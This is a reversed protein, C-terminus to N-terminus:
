KKGIVKTTDQCINALFFLSLKTHKSAQYDTKAALIRM